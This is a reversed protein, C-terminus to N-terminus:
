NGQKESFTHPAHDTAIFDIHISKVAEMLKLQNEKSKISPNWKILAGLQQYDDSNFWLHHLCVEGTILKERTANKNDLLLAEAATSIHFLHLRAAHSRALDIVAKTTTLCAAESRIEAHLEIHIDDGYISKFHKTNKEIIQDSESHLAIIKIRMGTTWQHLM